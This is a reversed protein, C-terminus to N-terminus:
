IIKDLINELANNDFPFEIFYKYSINKNQLKEKCDKNGIIIINNFDKLQKIASNECDIFIADYNETDLNELITYQTFNEDLINILFSKIDEDQIFVGLQLDKKIIPLYISIITGINKQTSIRMFGGSARTFTEVMTLGIGLGKKIDKDKTTFFPDTAYRKIENDMGIGNDEIALVVYEREKEYNTSIQRKEISVIIRPMDRGNLAEVANKLIEKIISFLDEENIKIYTDNEVNLQKEVNIEKLLEKNMDLIKKLSEKINLIKREKRNDSCIADTLKHVLVGADKIHKYINAFLEENEQSKTKIQLHETNYMIGALINNFDHSIGSVLTKLANFKNLQIINEEMIKRETIDYIRIVTKKKLVDSSLTTVVSIIFFKEVGDISINYEDAFVGGGESFATEILEKVPLFFPISFLYQNVFDKKLIEKMRENMYEVRMNADVTIIAFTSMDALREFFVKSETLSLMNDHMQKMMDNFVKIFPKIEKRNGIKVRGSFDGKLVNVAIDYMENLPYFIDRLYYRFSVSFVIIFFILSFAILAIILLPPSYISKASVFILAYYPINYLKVFHVSYKVNDIKYIVEGALENKEKIKKLLMDEKRINNQTGSKFLIDGADNLIGLIVDEKSLPAIFKEEIIPVSLQMIIRKKSDSIPDDIYPFIMAVSEIGLITDYFFPTYYVNTSDFKYIDFIYYDRDVLSFEIDGEENIILYDIVAPDMDSFIYKIYKNKNAAKVMMYERYIHIADDNIKNWVLGIYNAYQVSYIDLRKNVKNKYTNYLLIAFGSHIIIIIIIIVIFNYTKKKTDM